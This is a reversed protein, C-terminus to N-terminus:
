MRRGSQPCFVSANRLNLAVPMPHGVVAPHDRHVRATIQAGAIPLRVLTDAGTPEVLVPTANTLFADNGSPVGADEPRLGIVAPRGDSPTEAWAYHSLPLIIGAAELMAAGDRLAIRGHLFSMGPSGVFGAVFLSEPRDYIARPSGVQLIQGDRMVAIRTAMSMAEVQDHTVYVVTTGLRQHLLKIEARMEARLQADLNSLPEDFLFLEPDRVLARGIAVRQRQGGSLQAPKRGLLPGLQLLRAAEALKAAAEARGVGRMRMGFTINKAVTMTPYLAYSQFVVAINREAPELFTVDRGGLIVRGGALDQLGALAALLTSKGCGSPGLLVMFEGPSVDLSVGDLATFKGYTLRIDRASLGSAARM